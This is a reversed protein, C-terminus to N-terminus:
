VCINRHVNVCFCITKTIIATRIIKMDVCFIIVFSRVLRAFSLETHKPTPAPTSKKKASSPRMPLMKMESPPPPLAELEQFHVYYNLILMTEKYFILFQYFLLKSCMKHYKCMFSSNDISSIPIFIM